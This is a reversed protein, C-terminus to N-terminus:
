PGRSIKWRKAEKRSREASRSGGTYYYLHVGSIQNKLYASGLRPFFSPVDYFMFFLLLFSGEMLRFWGALFRYRAFADCSLM